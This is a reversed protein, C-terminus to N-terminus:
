SRECYINIFKLEKDKTEYDCVKALYSADVVRLGRKTILYINFGYNILKDILEKPSDGYGRIGDGWIEIILKLEPNTRILKDMGQLAAMEAGQIDMKIVSPKCKYSEFFSDLSITDVSVQRQEKSSAWLKHNGSNETDLFLEMTGVKNTVAKEILIVNEYKNVDVNRSLLDYNNTDPEFAFVKGSRGVLKAGLLAYYGINAGVDVFVMGEKLKSKLLTTEGEEWVKTFYLTKSVVRDSTDLIMKSGQVNCLISETGKGSHSFIIDTAKRILWFKDLGRGAFVKTLLSDMLCIKM